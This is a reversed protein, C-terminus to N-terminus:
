FLDGAVAPLPGTLHKARKNLFTDLHQQFAAVNATHVAAEREIRLETRENLIHGIANTLAKIKRDVKKDYVKMHLEFSERFWAHWKQEENANM